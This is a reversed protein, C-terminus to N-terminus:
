CVAARLRSTLKFPPSQLTLLTEVCLRGFAAPLPLSKEASWIILTEVCLRGFAAPSSSRRSGIRCSRKLVCGGSPPQRMVRSSCLSKATEVCLRGFAAPNETQEYFFIVFTEVCLRGFAAPPVPRCCKNWVRPKLVCGGSPPQTAGKVQFDLLKPKM